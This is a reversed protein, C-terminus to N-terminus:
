TRYTHDHLTLLLILYDSVGGDGLPGIVDRPGFSGPYHFLRFEVLIAWETCSELSPDVSVRCVMAGMNGESSSTRTRWSTASSSTRSSSTSTRETMSGIWHGSETLSGLFPWPFWSETRPPESVEPGPGKLSKWSRVGTSWLYYLLKFDGTM